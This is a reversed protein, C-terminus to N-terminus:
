LNEFVFIGNKPTNLHALVSRASELSLSAYGSQPSQQHTELGINSTMSLNEFTGLLAINHLNFLYMNEASETLRNSSSLNQELPEKQKLSQSARSKWNNLSAVVSKIFVDDPPANKERHSLLGPTKNEISSVINWCIHAFECFDAIDLSSTVNEAADNTSLRQGPPPFEITEISLM